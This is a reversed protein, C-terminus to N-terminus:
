VDLNRRLMTYYSLFDPEAVTTLMPQMSGPIVQYYGGTGGGPTVPSGDAITDIYMRIARVHHITDSAVPSGMGWVQDNVKVALVKPFGTGIPLSQTDKGAVQFQRSRGAIVQEYDLYRSISASGQPVDLFGPALSPGSSSFLENLIDVETLEQTTWVDHIELQQQTAGNSAGDIIGLLPYGFPLEIEQVDWAGPFVALEEASIGSLALEQRIYFILQNGVVQLDGNWNLRVQDQFQQWTGSSILFPPTSCMLQSQGTLLDKPMVDEEKAQSRPVDDQGPGV